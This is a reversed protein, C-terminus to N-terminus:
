MGIANLPLFLTITKLIMFSYAEITDDDFFEFNYLLFKWLTQIHENKIVSQIHEKIAQHLLYYIMHLYAIAFYKHLNRTFVWNKDLLAYKEKACNQFM